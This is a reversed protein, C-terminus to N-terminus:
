DELLDDEEALSELGPADRGVGHDALVALEM